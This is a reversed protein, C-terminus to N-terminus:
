EVKATCEWALAELVFTRRMEEGSYEYLCPASRAACVVFLRWERMEVACRYENRTLFFRPESCDTGKVEVLLKTSKSFALLDYGCNKSQYDIVQFGRQELARVVFAIAAAEM